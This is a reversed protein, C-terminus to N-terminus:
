ESVEPKMPRQLERWFKVPGSLHTKGDWFIIPVWTDNVGDDSRYAMSVHEGDSIWVAQGKFPKSDKISTWHGAAVDTRNIEEPELGSEEYAGLRQCLDEKKAPSWYGTKIGNCRKSTLRM